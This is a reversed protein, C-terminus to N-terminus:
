DPTQGADGASAQNVLYSALAENAWVSLGEGHAKKTLGVDDTVLVAGQCQATFAILMDEAGESKFAEGDGEDAWRANDWKSVDWVFGHTPITEFHDLLALLKARRVLDSTRSLEDRQVHTVLFRDRGADHRETALLEARPHAVLSDFANSDLVFDM